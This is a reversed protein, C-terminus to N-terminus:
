GTHGGSGTAWDPKTHKAGHGMLVTQATGIKSALERRAVDSTRDLESVLAPMGNLDAFARLDDLVDLIWTKGM